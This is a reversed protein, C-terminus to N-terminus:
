CQRIRSSRSCCPASSASYMPAFPKASLRALLRVCRVKTPPSASIIPGSGSWGSSLVSRPVWRPRLGRRPRKWISNSPFALGRNPRAAPANAQMEPANPMSSAESPQAPPSKAVEAQEARAALRKAKRGQRFEFAARAAAGSTLLDANAIRAAGTRDLEAILAGRPDYGIADLSGASPGLGFRHLALAAHMGSDLVM